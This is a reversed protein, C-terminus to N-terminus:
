IQRVNADVSGANCVTLDAHPDNKISPDVLRSERNFVPNRQELILVHTELVFCHGEVKQFIDAM